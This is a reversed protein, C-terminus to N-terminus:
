AEQIWSTSQCILLPTTNYQLANYQIQDHHIETDKRTRQAHLIFGMRPENIENIGKWCTSATKLAAVEM